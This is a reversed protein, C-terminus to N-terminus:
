LAEAGCCRTEIKPKPPSIITACPACICPPLPKFWLHTHTDDNTCAAGFTRPDAAAITAATVLLGTSLILGARRRSSILSQPWPRVLTTLGVFSTLVGITIQIDLSVM